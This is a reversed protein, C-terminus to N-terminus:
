RSTLSVYAATYSVRGGEVYLMRLDTQVKLVRRVSYNIDTLVYTYISDYLGRRTEDLTFVPKDVAMSRYVLCLM